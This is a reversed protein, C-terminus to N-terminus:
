TRSSTGCGAWPKRPTAPKTPRTAALLAPLAIGAAGEKGTLRRKILQMQTQHPMPM